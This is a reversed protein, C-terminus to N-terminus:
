WGVGADVDGAAVAAAVSLNAGRPLSMVRKAAKEREDARVKAIHECDCWVQCFHCDCPYADPHHHSLTQCLPDHTM